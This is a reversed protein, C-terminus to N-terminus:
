RRRNTGNVLRPRLPRPRWSRRPRRIWELRSRRRQLEEPLEDGRKGKGFQGDEQADILEVKRLLARMETELQRESKLMREHSMAKHRSANARIKTGDLAVRGLSQGTDVVYAARTM